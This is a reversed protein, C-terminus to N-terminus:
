RRSRDVVLVILVPAGVFLVLATVLVLTASGTFVFIAVLLVLVLAALAGWRERHRRFGPGHQWLRLRRWALAFREKRARAAAAKAREDALQEARQAARREREARAAQRAKSMEGREADIKHLRAATPPRTHV